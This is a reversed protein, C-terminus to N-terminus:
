SRPTPLEGDWVRVSWSHRANSGLPAGGYVVDFSDGSDVRGSAWVNAGTPTDRFLRIECATQAAGNYSADVIWGFRPRAADIGLPRTMHEVRLSGVALKRVDDQSRAAPGGLLSLPAVLVVPVWRTLNGGIACKM